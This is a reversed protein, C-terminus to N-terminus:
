EKMKEQRNKKDLGGKDNLSTLGFGPFLKFVSLFNVLDNLDQYQHLHFPHFIAIVFLQPPSM